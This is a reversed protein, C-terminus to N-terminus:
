LTALTDLTARLAAFVAAASGAVRVATKGAVRAQEIQVGTATWADRTAVINAAAGAAPMGTAAAEAEVWAHGPGPIALYAVADAYKELYTAEQGPAVTIYRERAAGAARDIRVLAEDRAAGVGGQFGVHVATM